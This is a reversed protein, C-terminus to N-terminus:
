ARNSAPCGLSVQCDSKMWQRNTNAFGSNPAQGVVGVDLDEVPEVIVGAVQQRGGRVLGRGAVGDHGREKLDDLAV